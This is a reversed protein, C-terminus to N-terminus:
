AERTIKLNELIKSQKDEMVVREEDTMHDYGLLHLMSHAVLFCIERRLSHGYELAQAKARDVSIIIDGLNYENTEMDLVSFKVEPDSLVSFDAPLRYDIMPFSLVDTPSDINRFERNIKQIKENNTFSVSVYIDLDCNETKLVELVVAEIDKEYEFEFNYDLENQFDITM